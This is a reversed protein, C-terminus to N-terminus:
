IHMNKMQFANLHGFLEVNQNSSSDIWIDKTDFEHSMYFHSKTPYVLKKANRHLSMKIETRIEFQVQQGSSQHNKIEYKIAWYALSYSNM